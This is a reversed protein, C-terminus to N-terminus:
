ENYSKLNECLHSHLIGDEPIHRQRNVCSRCLAVDWFIANKKDKRIYTHIYTRVYVPHAMFDLGQVAVKLSRNNKGIRRKVRWNAAVHGVVTSGKTESVISSSSCLHNFKKSCLVTFQESAESHFEMQMLLVLVMYLDFVVPLDTRKYIYM